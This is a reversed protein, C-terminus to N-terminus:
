FMAAKEIALMTKVTLKSCQTSHGEFQSIWYFCFFNKKKQLIDGKSNSRSCFHGNEVDYFFLFTVSKVKMNEKAFIMTAFGFTLM